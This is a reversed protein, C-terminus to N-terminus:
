WGWTGVGVVYDADLMVDKNGCSRGRHAFQRPDRLLQAVGILRTNDRQHLGISPEDLIYLVNVLKSGLQTAWGSHAADAGSLSGTTRNLSLYNLGM